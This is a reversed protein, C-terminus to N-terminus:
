RGVQEEEGFSLAEGGIGLLEPDFLSSSDVVPFLSQPLWGAQSGRFRVSAREYAHLSPEARRMEHERWRV